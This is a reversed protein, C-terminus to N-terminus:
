DTTAAAATARARHRAILVAAGGVLVFVLGALALWRVPVIAAAAVLVLPTAVFVLLATVWKM